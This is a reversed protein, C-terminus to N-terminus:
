GKILVRMILFIKQKFTKKKFVRRYKEQMLMKYKKKYYLIEFEAEIKQENIEKEYKRGTDIDMQELCNVLKEKFRIYKEHDNMMRRTWSSVTAIRYVSMNEPLYLMGGRLAGMVQLTYDLRLMKRFEPESNDVIGRRYFLAASAVFGGGGKIIESTSFVCEKEAPNIYGVVRGNEKEIAGHACIDIDKNKELAEYQKQLKDAAIWYDDGECFAIYEGRIKPKMYSQIIDIGKSYQNEKQYIPIIRKPYKQAYEKIIEATGDTSADDHVIIEYEFNTKQMLFSDLASKIYQEHNYTMCLVSVKIEDKM